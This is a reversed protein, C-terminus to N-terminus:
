KFTSGQKTMWPHIEYALRGSKVAPDEGVLRKVSNTDTSNFILIGRFFGDDLFPGAVNLAGTEAMKQIHALHLTQIRSVTASDQTRNPGKKLLVFTYTKM